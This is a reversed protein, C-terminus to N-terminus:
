SRLVNKLNNLDEEKTLIVVRDIYTNKKLLEEIWWEICHPNLSMLEGWTCLNSLQLVGLEKLNEVVRKKIFSLEIILNSLKVTEDKISLDLCNYIPPYSCVFKYEPYEIFFEQGQNVNFYYSTTFNNNSLKEKLERWMDKGYVRSYIKDLVKKFETDIKKYLEKNELKVIYEIYKNIDFDFCKDM